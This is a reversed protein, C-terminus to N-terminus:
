GHCWAWAMVLLGALLILGYFDRVSWSGIVKSWSWTSDKAPQSKCYEGADLLYPEVEYRRAGDYLARYKREQRLYRTDLSAFLVVAFMGILAVPVSGKTGAYGYAATAVTLAWGKAVAAAASMRGIATQIFELHKRHDDPTPPKASNDAANDGPM